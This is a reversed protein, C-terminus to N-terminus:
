DIIQRLRAADEATTDAPHHSIGDNGRRSFLMGIDTLTALKAPLTAPSMWLKM